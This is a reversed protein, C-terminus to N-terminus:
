REASVTEIVPMNPSSVARKYRDELWFLGFPKWNGARLVLKHERVFQEFARAVTVGPELEQEITYPTPMQKTYILAKVRVKGDREIVRLAAKTPTLRGPRIM